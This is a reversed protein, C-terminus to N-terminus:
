KGIFVEPRLSFSGATEIKRGSVSLQKEPTSLKNISMESGTKDGKFIHPNEEQSPM